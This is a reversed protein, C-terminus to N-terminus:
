AITFSVEQWRCKLGLEPKSGKTHVIEVEEPYGPQLVVWVYGGADSTKNGFRLDAFRILSTSTRASRLFSQLTTVRRAPTEELQYVCEHIRVTEPKEVGRAEFYSLEPTTSSSNTALDLEFLIRNCSLATSLNTKVTGNTTIAATLATASTDTDKFYKPTVTLNATCGKTETIISQILKDWYRNSGINYSMKIFGSAAFKAASDATPNDSLIVYGTTNTYGFWLRRDTDTHQVVKMTIFTKTGLYIWPCWQWRLKGEKRIERGKYIHTNTGEDVAVYLWDKDAALAVIDGVKGINGIRHLPGMPEYANYSTIEAMGRGETHYIGTQWEQAYKFNTSSRNSKLDPRLPHLGGDSDYHYLNDEKGIMLNDNILFIKNTLNSTDGIYAPSSWQVGSAAVTRGDTTYSLENPNKWKWLVNSTGAANPSVFFGWGTGDTLDTQTWTSGDSSYWYKAGGSVMAYAIGNFEVMDVVGAVNTAALTWKGDSAVDYRYIRGSAGATACLLIGAGSNGAEFWLFVGPASDLDTDDSEKVENILPGLFIRGDQTTDISQGELFMDPADAYEQGHGGSWDRQIIKLESQYKPLEESVKYM